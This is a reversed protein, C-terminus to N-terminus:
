FNTLLSILRNLHTREGIVGFTDGSKLLGGDPKPMASNTPDWRNFTLVPLTFVTTM